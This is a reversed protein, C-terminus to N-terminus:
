MILETSLGFKRTLEYFCQFVDNLMCFHRYDKRVNRRKPCQSRELGNLKIETWWTVSSQLVRDCPLPFTLAISM